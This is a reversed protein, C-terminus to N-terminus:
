GIKVASNAVKPPLHIIQVFHVFLVQAIQAELNGFGNKVLVFSDRIDALQAATTQFCADLCRVTNTLRM